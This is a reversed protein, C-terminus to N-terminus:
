QATNGSDVLLLYGLASKHMTARVQQLIAQIGAPFTAYIIRTPTMM